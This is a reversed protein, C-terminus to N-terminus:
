PRAEEDTPERLGYSAALERSQDPAERVMLGAIAVAADFRDPSLHDLTGHELLVWAEVQSAPLEPELRRIRQQYTEFTM